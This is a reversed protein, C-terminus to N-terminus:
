HPEEKGVHKDALFLSLYQFLRSPQTSVGLTPAWHHINKQCFDLNELNKGLRTTIPSVWTQSTM